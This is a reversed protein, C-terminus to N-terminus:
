SFCHFSAQADVFSTSKVYKGCASKKKFKMQIKLVVWFNAGDFSSTLHHLTKKKKMQFKFVKVSITKKKLLSM